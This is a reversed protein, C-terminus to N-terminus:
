EKPAPVGMMEFFENENGQGPAPEQKVDKLGMENLFADSLGEDSTKVHHKGPSALRQKILHSYNAYQGANGSKVFDPNPIFRGTENTELVRELDGIEQVQPSISEPLLDIVTNLSGALQGAAEFRKQEVESEIYVKFQERIAEETGEVISIKGAKLNFYDAHLFELALVNIRQIEALVEDISPMGIFTDITEQTVQINLAKLDNSYKKVLVAKIKEEDGRLYGSGPIALNQSSLVLFSKLEQLTVTIKEVLSCFTDIVKQLQKKSYHLAEIRKAAEQEYNRILKKETM